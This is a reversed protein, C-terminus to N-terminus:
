YVFLKLRQTLFWALLLKIGDPLLYPLVSQALVPFFAGTSDPGLYAFWFWLMGMAYCVTQGAIMGALRSVRSEKVASTICWYVLGAALFGWIYGGTAGLLMGIGGRFGTFVPLGVAGMALYVAIAATGLRGGLLGLTLFVGLTQLTFAIETVPISIWACVTLLAAFLGCFAMNRARM